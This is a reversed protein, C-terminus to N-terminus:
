QILFLYFWLFNLEREWDLYGCKLQEFDMNCTTVMHFVASVFCKWWWLFNQQSASCTPPVQHYSRLIWYSISNVRLPRIGYRQFLYTACLLPFIYVVHMNSKFFWLIFTCNYSLYFAYKTATIKSSPHVFIPLSIRSIRFLFLLHLIGCFSIHFNFQWYYLQTPSDLSTLHFLCCM